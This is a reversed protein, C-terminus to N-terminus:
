ARACVVQFMSTVGMQTFRSFMMNNSSCSHGYGDTGVWAIYVKLSCIDIGGTSTPYSCFPTYYKSQDKFDTQGYPPRFPIACMLRSQLNLRLPDQMKWSWKDIEDKTCTSSQCRMAEPQGWCHEYGCAACGQGGTEFDYRIWNNTYILQGNSVSILATLYPIASYNYFYPVKNSTLFCLCAASRDTPGTCACSSDRSDDSTKRGGIMVQVYFTSMGDKIFGDMVGTTVNTGNNNARMKKWNCNCYGVSPYLGSTPLITPPDNWALDTNKTCGPYPDGTAPNLKCYNDASCIRNGIQQQYFNKTSSSSTSNFAPCGFTKKWIDQGSKCNSVQDDPVKSCDVPQYACPVDVLSFKDM